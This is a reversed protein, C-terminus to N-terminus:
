YITKLTHAWTKLMEPLLIFPEYCFFILIRNCFFGRYVVHYHTCSHTTTQVTQHQQLYKDYSCIIWSVAFYCNVFFMHWVLTYFASLNTIFQVTAYKFVPTSPISSPRSPKYQLVQGSYQLLHIHFHSSANWSLFAISITKHKIWYRNIGM